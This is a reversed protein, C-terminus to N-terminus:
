VLKLMMAVLWVGIMVNAVLLFVVQVNGSVEAIETGRMDNKPAKLFFFPSLL